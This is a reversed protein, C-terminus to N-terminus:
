LTPIKEGEGADFARIEKYSHASLEGRGNTTRNLTADHIVWLEGHALHVDIEVWNAGLEIAKKISLITNEPVYGMAGRHGICLM